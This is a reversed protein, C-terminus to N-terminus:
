EDESMDVTILASEQWSWFNEYKTFLNESPLKMKGAKRFHMWAPCCRHVLTAIYNWDRNQMEARTAIHTMLNRHVSRIELRSCFDSTLGVREAELMYAGLIAATAAMKCQADTMSPCSAPVSATGLRAAQERCYRADIVPPPKDFMGGTDGPTQMTKLGEWFATHISLDPTYSVFANAQWVRATAAYRACLEAEAEDQVKGLLSRIKEAIEEARAIRDNTNRASTMYRHDQGSMTPKALSRVRAVEEAPPLHKLRTNEWLAHNTADKESLGYSTVLYRRRDMDGGLDRGALEVPVVVPVPVLYDWAGRPGVTYADALQPQQEALLPPLSPKSITRKKATM